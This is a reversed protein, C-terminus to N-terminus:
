AQSNPDTNSGRYNPPKSHISREHKPDRDEKGHDSDREKTRLVLRHGSVAAMAAAAITVIPSAPATTTATAVAADHVIAPVAAVAGIATMAIATATASQEMTSMMAPM